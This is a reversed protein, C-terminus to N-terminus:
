GSSPRKFRRLYHTTFPKFQSQAKLNCKSQLVVFMGGEQHIFYYINSHATLSTALNIVVDRGRWAARSATLQDEMLRLFIRDEREAWCMFVEPHEEPRARGGRTETRESQIVVLGRHRDTAAACSESPPVVEWLRGCVGGSVGRVHISVVARM